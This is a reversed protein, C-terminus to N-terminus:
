DKIVKQIDTVVGNIMVQAIYIGNPISSLDAVQVTNEGSNIIINKSTIIQGTAGQLSITGNGNAAATFSVALQERFPNSLVSLNTNKSDQLKVAIIGSYSYKGSIDVQKLRYWANAKGNFDSSNDRMLYSVMNNSERRGELVLGIVNFTNGDFSREVEFYNDAPKIDTLWNLEVKGTNTNTNLLTYKIPVHTYPTSAMRKFYTCNIRKAASVDNGPFILTTSQLNYSAPTTTKPKGVNSFDTGSVETNSCHGRSNEKLFVDRSAWLKNSMASEYARAAFRYAFETSTNQAASNLAAMSFCNLLVTTITKM